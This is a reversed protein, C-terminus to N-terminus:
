QNGAMSKTDLAYFTLEIRPLPMWLSVCCYGLQNCDFYFSFRWKKFQIKNCKQIEKFKQLPNKKEERKETTVNETSKPQKHLSPPLLILNQMWSVNVWVRCVLSIAGDDICHQPSSSWWPTATQKGTSLPSQLSLNSNRPYIATACYPCVLSSNVRQALTLFLNTCTFRFPLYSHRDVTCSENLWVNCHNIKGKKKIEETLQKSNPRRESSTTRIM